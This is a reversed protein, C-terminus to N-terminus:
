GGALEKSSIFAGHWSHYWVQGTYGNVSLMGEIRGDTKYDFTYFGYFADPAGADYAGGRQDLWGQAITAAQDASVTMPGSSSTWGMMGTQRGAMPGYKSNWMMDPGPEFAAVRSSRDVLLEFAGVDTDKEKVRVYYNDQFELIEDLVLGSYGSRDVFTQAAQQAQGFTLAQSGGPLGRAVAAGVAGVAAAAILLGLGIFLFTRSRM